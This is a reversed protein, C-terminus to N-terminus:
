GRMAAALKVILVSGYKYDNALYDITKDDLGAKEKVIKKAEEVTMEEGGIAKLYTLPDVWDRDNFDGCLGFHLHPGTSDGTSGVNGIPQGVKIIQGPAVNRQKLHAYITDFGNHRIVIYNGYGKRNNQMKSILVKGDAVAFVTTGSLAPYDIGEHLKQIKLIPHLRMGFKSNIKNLDMGKIPYHAFKIM